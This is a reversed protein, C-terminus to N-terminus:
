SHKPLTLTITTGKGPASELAIQGDLNLHVDNSVMNLGLGICQLDRKTSFFPTFAQKQIAESMGVGNDSVQILVQQQQAQIDICIQGKDAVNLGHLVANRLLNSIVRQLAASRTNLVLDEPCNIQMQYLSYQYESRISTVLDHMLPSLHTASTAEQTDDIGILKFYKVLKSIKELSELALQNSSMVMDIYALLDGRSLTKEEICAPLCQSEGIVHSLGTIGVGVPTNIEHAVGCVLESFVLRKQAESEIHKRNLQVVTIHARVRALLEEKSFPKTIYDNGGATFGAVLNQMQHKATVFIIPLEDARKFTRVQKAISLGNMNPMMMDLLIIDPIDTELLTLAAKGSTATTTQMGGLRLINEAVMLNVPEDDVILVSGNAAQAECPIAQTDEGATQALTHAIDENVQTDKPDATLQSSRPLTFCFHSGKGVQSKVRLRGAHLQVLDKTIALGLGTGGYRRATSSDGQEFPEFIRELKDASIGVGTDSVVIELESTKAKATISITGSETFKIANGILNFMIQQVRHEDALLLPLDDPIANEITVPKGMVLPETQAVVIGVLAKLDFSTLQFQIDMNNLKSFDLVDDVLAALRQGSAVIMSLGAKVPESIPGSAGDHLSQALGNIGHLPTRLEHSTNALFEDKLRDMVQLNQMSAQQATVKEASREAQLLHVRDGLSVSLFLAHLVVGLPLLNDTIMNVPLIGFTKLTFVVVGLLLVCWALLYYRASRYGQTVCYLGSGLLVLATVLTLLLIAKMTLAYDTLLSVPLLTCFVGILLQFLRALRPAHLHIDLFHWALLLAFISSTLVFLGLSHDVWWIHDGWFYESSFGNFGMSLMFISQMFLASYIYRIDQVAKYVIINYVSSILLMGFFLGFTLLAHTEQEVFALPTALTLPMQLASSSDVRLWWTTPKGHTQLSFLPYRHRPQRTSIPVHDGSQASQWVSEADQWYLTAHDLPAYGLALLWEAHAPGHTVFRLWYVARSYGANLVTQQSPVFRNAIAESAVAQINVQRTTDVWYDIQQPALTYVIAPDDLMLVESFASVHLCLWLLMVGVIKHWMM